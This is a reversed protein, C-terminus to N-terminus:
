SPCTKDRRFRPKWVGYTCAVRCLQPHYELWMCTDCGDKDLPCTKAIVKEPFMSEESIWVECTM